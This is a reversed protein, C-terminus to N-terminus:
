NTSAGVGGPIEVRCVLGSIPLHIFAGVLAATQAAKLADAYASLQGAYESARAIARERNGPFTKHDVLVLGQKTEVVLDAIGRLVTGSPHRHLLPWERHLVSGPWSSDIWRILRDSIERLQPAEITGGVEFRHLIKQALAEREATSLTPRDAALFAHVADGFRRTDEEDRIAAPIRAGIEITASVSARGELASPNLTAPPHPRPGTPAYGQAPIRERGGERIPPLKRVVVEFEQRADASGWIARGDDSPESLLTVGDVSLVTLGGDAIRGPRAAYVLRDRARTWGVYVLRLAERRAQDKATQSAEHDELRELFPVDKRKRGYPGPWYRLWRGALPDDLDLSKRDSALRLGLASIDPRDTLDALVTVPWELGKSSHLTCICVADPREAAAQTDLLEGALEELHV